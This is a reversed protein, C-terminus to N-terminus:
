FGLIHGLTQYEFSFCYFSENDEKLVIQPTGIVSSLPPMFIVLREEKDQRGLGLSCCQRIYYDFTATWM